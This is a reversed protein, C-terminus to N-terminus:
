DTVIGLSDAYQEGYETFHVDEDEEGTQTMALQGNIYMCGYKVAGIEYDDDTFKYCMGVSDVGNNMKWSVTVIYLNSQEDYVVEVHEDDFNEEEYLAESLDYKLQLMSIQRREERGEPTDCYYSPRAQVVTCTMVVMVMMMVVMMMVKKFM